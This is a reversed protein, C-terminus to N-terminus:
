VLPFERSRCGDLAYVEIKGSYGGLQMARVLQPIGRCPVCRYAAVRCQSAVGGVTEHLELVLGEKLVQAVEAGLSLTNNEM